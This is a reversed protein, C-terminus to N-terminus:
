GGKNKSVCVMPWAAKSHKKSTIDGGRWLCHKRLQDLQKIVGKHLKLTFAYFVASSSFVSNVMELKGGQSLFMSTSGLKKEIKQILPLFHEMKPKTTGLPLGLYTFPLSGKQCEFTKALSQLKTESINLPVMVSKGYNVKLGTSVAFNHLLHKLHLLQRPCVEMILLTDDAYQIIPFDAGARQPIPLNFNVLDKERNIITQLLDAALVFM